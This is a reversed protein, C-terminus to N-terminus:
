IGQARTRPVKFRCVSMRHSPPIWVDSSTSEESKVRTEVSEKVFRAHMKVTITDKFGQSNLFGPRKFRSSHPDTAVKNQNNEEDTEEDDEPVPPKQIILAQLILEGLQPSLIGTELGDVM